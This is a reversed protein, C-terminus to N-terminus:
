VCGIGPKRPVSLVTTRTNYSLSNKYTDATKYSESGLPM